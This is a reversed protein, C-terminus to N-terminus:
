GSMPLRGGCRMGVSTSDDGYPRLTRILRGHWAAQKEAYREVAEPACHNAGAHELIKESWQGAREHAILVVDRLDSRQEHVAQPNDPDADVRPRPPRTCTLGTGSTTGSRV